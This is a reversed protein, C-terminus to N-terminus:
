VLGSYRLCLVSSAHIWLINVWTCLKYSGLTYLGLRLVQVLEVSQDNRMAPTKTKM